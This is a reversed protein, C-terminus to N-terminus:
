HLHIFLLPQMLWANFFVDVGANANDIHGYNARNTDKLWVTDGSM